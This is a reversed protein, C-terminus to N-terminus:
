RTENIMQILFFRSSDNKTSIEFLANVFRDIKSDISNEVFFYIISDFKIIM